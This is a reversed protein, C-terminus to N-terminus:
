PGSMTSSGDELPRGLNRDLLPQLDPDRGMFERFLDEPEDSDGRTLISDLYAQGVERNFIGELRFRAFADADLVESWLYSYYAAAYGGSFLHTFSTTSHMRAFASGPTYEEFLGEIYSMLDHTVEDPHGRHLRLDLHGLSLQRMQRWGGMFTRASRLREYLDEPLPEGTEHHGSFLSIAEEEWTWNEMIQSSLEVFDWAVNIGAMPAIPVTSTLHHLLHGFEHFVTEVERHTLLSPVNGKPPSLNGAIIGIHPEFGGNRPGGTRLDNMWAGQRKDPRPHWDAYFYGLLTGDEERLLEYYHVDPHWVEPIRRERVVLGFVRRAVEFMGDLVRDLPFYPRIVEDDIDFRARRLSEGVFDTDWPEVESLGLVSAHERLEALDREWYPRTRQTMDEIFGFAREGTKAMRDELRYDAFDAYGLVDALERRLHLLRTIIESNAFEGDRCREVYATYLERRLERDHAHKIIPEFSPYDLTLLWGERGKEAAKRWAEERDAKPVGELRGGDEILLSYANTADIVNESFKRELSSIELRIASLKEKGATSLDAGARRFDRLTTDLHRREIPPLAVAEDTDALAKIRNWLEKNLTVRTWFETIEPLIEKYAERLEPTEAVSLLHTVPATREKVRELVGDLRGITDAYTPTSEVSVLEEIEARADALIRRVALVVHAAEIEGFPIRDYEILLPNPNTPMSAPPM